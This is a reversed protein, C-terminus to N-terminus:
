RGAAITKRRMLTVGLLGVALLAGSAPEPVHIQGEIVDNQCTPGWHLAVDSWGGIGTTGLDFAFSIEGPNVSWTGTGMWEAHASGTNVAVAQGDRFIGATLFEGPQLVNGINSAGSLRYLNFTGGGNNWRNDLSLGYTWVTGNAASDSAHHADMGYPHWSPALFLDGYGIGKPAAWTDVGAHGAFNTFINITLRGGNRYLDAGSIDFTTDGAGAIVDGFGHANSGWYSAAGDRADNIMYAKVNVSNIVALCAIALYITNKM